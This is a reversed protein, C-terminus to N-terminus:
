NLAQAAEFEAILAKRVRDDPVDVRAHAPIDDHTRDDLLRGARSKRVGGWQKFFFPVGAAACQDRVARVWAIELPRAGHGSEGGLIVWGIGRLDLVGLDELLPEVSLM